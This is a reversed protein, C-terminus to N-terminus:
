KMVEGVTKLLSLYLLYIIVIKSTRVSWSNVDFDCSCRCAEQCMATKMLTFNRDVHEMISDYVKPTYKIMTSTIFESLQQAMMVNLGGWM